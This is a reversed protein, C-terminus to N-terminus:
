FKTCNLVEWPGLKITLYFTIEYLKFSGLVISVPLYPPIRIITSKIIMVCSLAFIHIMDFLLSSELMASVEHMSETVEMVKAYYRCVSEDRNM